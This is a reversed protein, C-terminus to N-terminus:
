FQGECLHRMISPTLTPKRGRKRGRKNKENEIKTIYRRLVARDIGSRLCFRTFPENPRWLDTKTMWSTALKDRFSFNPEKDWNIRTLGKKRRKRTNLAGEFKDEFLRKRVKSLRCVLAQAGELTQQVQQEQKKDSKHKKYKRKKKKPRGAKRQNSKPEFYGEFRQRDTGTYAMKM